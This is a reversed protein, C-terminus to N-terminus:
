LKKRKLYQLCYAVIIIHNLDRFKISFLIKDRKLLSSRALSLTLDYELFWTIKLSPESHSEIPIMVEPLTSIM